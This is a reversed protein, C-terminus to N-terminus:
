VRQERAPVVLEIGLDLSPQGLEFALRIAAVRKVGIEEDVEVLLRVARPRMLDMQGSAVARGLDELLPHAHALEREVPADVARDAHRECQEDGRGREQIERGSGDSGARGACGASAAVSCRAEERAQGHEHDVQVGPDPGFCVHPQRGVHDLVHDDPDHDRRQEGGTRGDAQREERQRPGSTAPESSAQM